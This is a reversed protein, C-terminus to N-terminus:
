AETYKGDGRIVFNHLQIDDKTGAQKWSTVYGFGTYRQTGAATSNDIQFWKRSHGSLAGRLTAQQGYNTDATSLVLAEARAEWKRTGDLMEYNGSSDFNTADLEAMEASFEWNRLAGVKTVAQSSAASISLRGARGAFTKSIAM